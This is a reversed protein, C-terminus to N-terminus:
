YVGLFNVGYIALTLLADVLAFSIYFVAASLSKNKRIYNAFLTAISFILIPVITQLSTGFREPIDLWASFPVYSSITPLTALKAIYFLLIAISLPIWYKWETLNDQDRFLKVIILLLMGPLLWGFGIIPLFTIGILGEMGGQFIANIIDGANLRELAVITEPQTTAYYVHTGAAGERWALHLHNADDIFLVPDDSINETKTGLSYGAFKGEKFVAVAIQLHQDLRMAQNMALAIALEGSQNGQMLNPSLIFDTSAWAQEVPPALQTLQFSGQYAEYPQEEAPSLLLRESKEYAPTSAPFATYATFGTGAELGSQNLVSWFVYVWGGAAGVFPGDLSKGTGQPIDGIVITENPYLTQLTSQAYMLNGDEQWAIHLKDDMDLWMSPSGGNEIISSPEGANTGSSDLRQLYIPSQVGSSWCLLVGGQQDSIVQYNAVSVEPQTIQVPSSTPEGNEDLLLHWIAWTTEGPMRSGWFLHLYGESASALRPARLLGPFELNKEIIPMAQADLMVYRLYTSEGMNAPWVMHVREGHGEALIGISGTVYSGVSM